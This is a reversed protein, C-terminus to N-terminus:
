SKAKEIYRQCFTRAVSNYNEGEIRIRDDIINSDSISAAIFSINGNEAIHTVLDGIYSGDYVIVGRNISWYIKVLDSNIEM